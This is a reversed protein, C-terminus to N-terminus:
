TTTNKCVCVQPSQSFTVILTTIWLSCKVMLTQNPKKEPCLRGVSCRPPRPRSPTRPAWRGSVMSRPSHLPLAPAPAPSEHKQTVYGKIESQVDLHSPGGARKISPRSASFLLIMESPPVVGEGGLFAVSSSRLFKLCNDMWFGDLRLGPHPVAAQREFPRIATRPPPARAARSPPAPPAAHAAARLCRTLQDRRGHKCDAISLSFNLRRRGFGLRATWIFGSVNAPAM